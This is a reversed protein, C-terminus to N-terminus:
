HKLKEKRLDYKFKRNTYFQGDNNKIEEEHWHNNNGFFEVAEKLKGQMLYFDTITELHRIPYKSLFIIASDVTVFNDFFRQGANKLNDLVKNMVKDNDYRILDYWNANYYEKDWGDVYGVYDYVICNNNLEYGYIEKVWKKYKINTSIALSINFDVVDNAHNWRSKSYSIEFNFFDNKKKYTHLSKSFKFGQECLYPEIFEHFLRDIRDGPKMDQYLYNVPTSSKEANILESLNVRIIKEEM